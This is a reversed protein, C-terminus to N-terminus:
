ISVNLRLSDVVKILDAAFHFSDAGNWDYSAHLSEKRRDISELYAKDYYTLLIDITSAMDGERLKEAAANFHQGGLRKSIKKMAALFEEQNAKGYEEVLRQIRVEKSVNMNILPSKRMMMWFDEPLFVNGIALSEDEIWVRKAPNLKLIEEFLENQFQESTPQAPMFFGGFVSGKHHALTELDIIQEGQNELARLVESKGSGTCGSLIFIKLPERYTRSATQRYTKYGGELPQAKVKGMSAFQCFNSSRMGGRWCYVLIEKGRSVAETQMVMEELRPGVLRFGLRIADQQGHQKYMTGVSVREENNLLPINVAGPIHGSQYEKESRVDVVPLHKRLSLFTDLSLAM